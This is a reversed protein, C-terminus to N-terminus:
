VSVACTMDLISFFPFLIFNLSAYAGNHAASSSFSSLIKAKNEPESNCLAVMVSTGSADLVENEGVSAIEATFIILKYIM